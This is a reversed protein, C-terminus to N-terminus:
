EGADRAEYTSPVSPVDRVGEHPVDRVLASTACALRWQELADHQQCARAAFGACDLRRSPILDRPIASLARWLAHRAWLVLCLEEIALLLREAGPGRPAYTRRSTLRESGWRMTRAVVGEGDGVAGILVRLVAQEERLERALVRMVEGLEEGIRTPELAAEAASRGRGRDLARAGRAIAATLQLAVESAGVHARLYRALGESDLARTPSTAAAHGREGTIDVM